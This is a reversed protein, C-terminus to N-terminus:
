LRMGPSPEPAKERADIVHIAPSTALTRQAEYINLGNAGMYADLAGLVVPDTYGFERLCTVKGPDGLRCIWLDAMNGTQQQAWRAQGLDRTFSTESVALETGTRCGHAVVYVIAGDREARFTDLATGLGGYLGSFEQSLDGCRFSYAPVGFVEGNSARSVGYSAKWEIGDASVGNCSAPSSATAAVYEGGNERAITQLHSRVRGSIQKRSLGAGM